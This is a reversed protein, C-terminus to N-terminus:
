KSMVYSFYLNKRHSDFADKLLVVCYFCAPHIVRQRPELKGFMEQFKTKYIDLSFVDDNHSSGIIQAWKDKCEVVQSDLVTFVTLWASFMLESFVQWPIVKEVRDPMTQKKYLLRKVYAITKEVMDSEIPLDLYYMRRLARETTMNGYTSM